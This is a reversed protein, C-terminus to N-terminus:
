TLSWPTFWGSFRQFVQWKWVAPWRNSCNGNGLTLGWMGGEPWFCVCRFDWSVPDIEWGKGVGNPDGRSRRTTPFPKGSERAHKKCGPSNHCYFLRCLSTSASFSEYTILFHRKNVAMYITHIDRIYESINPITYIGIIPSCTHKNICM